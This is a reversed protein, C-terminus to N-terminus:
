DAAALAAAPRVLVIYGFLTKFEDRERKGQGTYTPSQRKNPNFLDKWMCVYM